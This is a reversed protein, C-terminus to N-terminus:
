SLFRELAEAFEEPKEWHLAHGAEYEKLVAGPIRQLIEEQDRMTFIGDQNGWVVLTPVDIRKLIERHDAELLGTLASRWVHAPVKMSESVITELFDSPVPNSPTQFDRVFERDLPDRLSIACGAFDQLAESEAPRATSSVLVLRNVRGPHLAAFAQAVLSGMSHGVLHVKQLALADMFALLDETFDNVAYRGEPKDSDGHGRMDIALARRKVPLGALISAFSKWSDAYGHLFVIPVEAEQGPREAYRLRIETRLPVEGLRIRGTRDLANEM